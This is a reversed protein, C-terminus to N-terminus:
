KKLQKDSRRRRAAMPDVTLPRYIEIRDGQRLITNLSKLKGFIGVKSVQIDIEPHKIVFHSADLADRITSHSPLTLEIIAVSQSNGYCVQVDVTDLNQESHNIAEAM